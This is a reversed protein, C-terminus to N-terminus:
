KDFKKWLFSFMTLAGLVAAGIAFYPTLDLETEVLEEEQIPILKINNPNM